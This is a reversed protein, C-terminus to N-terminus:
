RRPVKVSIVDSPASFLGAENEAVVYYYYTKGLQVSDTYTVDPYINYGDESFVPDKGGKVAKYVHYKVIPSGGDSTPHDWSLYVFGYGGYYGELNLPPSPATAITFVADSLDYVNAPDDTWSIKMRYDAAGTLSTSVYWSREGDNLTATTITYVTTSGRVLEIKVYETSAIGESSWYIMQTTGVKWIEGGDPQSITISPPVSIEVDDAWMHTGSCLNLWGAQFTVRDIPVGPGTRLEANSWKLVDDVYIDYLGTQVNIDLGILYPTNVTFAMITHFHNDDQEFWKLYGQQFCFTVAATEGAYLYAWGESSSCTTAVKMKAEIYLNGSQEEFEVYARTEGTVQQKYVELSPPDIANSTSDLGVFGGSDLVTWDDLGASFSDSFPLQQPNGLPALEFYVELEYDHNMTLIDFSSGIARIQTDAGPVQVYDTGPYYTYGEFVWYAVQYNEDPDTNVSTSYGYTVDDKVTQGPNCIPGITSGGAFPVSVELVMKTDDYIDLDSSWQAVQQYNTPGYVHRGVGIKVNEGEDLGQVTAKCYEWKWNAKDALSSDDALVAVSAQGDILDLGLNDSYIAYIDIARRADGLTMTDSLRFWGDVRVTGDGRVKYDDGFNETLKSWGMMEYDYEDTPKSISDVRCIFNHDPAYGWSDTVPKFTHTRGDPISRGLWNLGELDPDVSNKLYTHGTWGISLPDSVAAATRLEMTGLNQIDVEAYLQISRDAGSDAPWSWAFVPMLSVDWAYASGAPSGEDFAHAECYAEQEESGEADELVSSQAESMDGFMDAATLGVGATGFVIGAAGLVGAGVPFSAVAIVLSGCAVGFNLLDMPDAEDIYRGDIWDTNINIGGPELSHGQVTTPGGPFISALADNTSTDGPNTGLYKVAKVRLKTVVWKNEGGGWFKVEKGNLAEWDFSLTKTHKGSQDVIGIATDWPVPSLDAYEFHVHRLGDMGIYLAFTSRFYIQHSPLWDRVNDWYIMLYDNYGVQGYYLYVDSYYDPYAMDRWFPALLVKTCDPSNLDQPTELPDREFLYPDRTSGLVVFGHYSVYIADYWTGFYLVPIIDTIWKGDQSEFDIPIDYPSPEVMIADRYPANDPILEYNERTNASAVVAINATRTPDTVGPLGPDYMVTSIGATLSVRCIGDTDSASDVLKQGLYASTPSGDKWTEFFNLQTDNSVGPTASVSGSLLPFVSFLMLICVAAASSARMRYESRAYQM